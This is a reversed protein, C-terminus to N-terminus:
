GSGKRFEPYGACGSHSGGRHGELPLGPSYLVTIVVMYLNDSREDLFLLQGKAPGM